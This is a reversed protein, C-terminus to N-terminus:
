KRKKWLYSEGSKTQLFYKVCWAYNNDMQISKILEEQLKKVEEMSNVENVVTKQNHSSKELYYQM